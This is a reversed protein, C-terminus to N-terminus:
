LKRRSKELFAAAIKPNNYYYLHPFGALLTDTSHMCRWGRESLPKQAWMDFGCNTSDFYHFEHGNMAGVDQGFVKGDQLTIYGFRNLKATRYAQGTIFGVMPYSTGNMDEMAEQLYMFGGCEAMCPIGRTLAQHISARMGENAHLEKAYLEPYGGGLLLGQTDPPLQCDHLPSFAVLEAGMDTLLQLNDEYYFCFAEDRAVAIRVLDRDEELTVPPLYSSILGPASHALHLIAEFDLSVECVDSLNQMQEQLNAIEDPMVLGLHRSELMCDKMVPVYGCVKVPLEAEIQNKMREYLMPSIQNLIVGKIHSNEKYDLFGKIYPIISLSMGKCNVIFVVPIDAANAVSWASADTSVGALGDYFGMVGEVVAIDSGAGNKMMLYKIVSEETFFTDLNRSKTGIVRTHFMPDIYDPGCKFSTVSLGRNKLSQLIGCTILTKGSGSAAAALMIRPLMM